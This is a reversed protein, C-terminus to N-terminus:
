EHIKEDVWFRMFFMASFGSFYIIKFDWPEFVDLLTESQCPSYGCAPIRWFKLMNEAVNEVSGERVHPFGDWRGNFDLPQERILAAGSLRGSLGEFPPKKSLLKVLFTTPRGCFATSARENGCLVGSSSGAMAPRPPKPTGAPLKSRHTLIPTSPAIAAEAAAAASWAPSLGQSAYWSATVDFGISVLTLSFPFKTRRVM